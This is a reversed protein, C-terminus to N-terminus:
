PHTATAESEAEQALSVHVKGGYLPVLKYDSARGAPTSRYTRVANQIQDRWEERKEASQVQLLGHFVTVRTGTEDVTEVSLWGDKNPYM